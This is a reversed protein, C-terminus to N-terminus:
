DFVAWFSNYSAKSWTYYMCVKFDATHALTQKHLAELITSGKPVDRNLKIKLFPTHALGDRGSKLMVENDANLGVTYFCAKPTPDIGILKYLQYSITLATNAPLLPLESTCTHEVSKGL